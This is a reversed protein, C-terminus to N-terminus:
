ATDSREVPAGGRSLAAAALGVALGVCDALADSVAPDRDIFPHGQTWETGVALFLGVAAVAVWRLRLRTARIWSWAFGTFLTFHVALDTRSLVGKLEITKEDPLYRQPTLTLGLLLCTWAIALAMPYNRPLALLWRMRRQAVAFASQDHEELTEVRM